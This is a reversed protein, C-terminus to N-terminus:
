LGDAVHRRPQPAAHRGPRGRCLKVKECRARARSRQKLKYERRHRAHPTGARRHGQESSARRQCREAQHRCCHHAHATAPRKRASITIRHVLHVEAPTSRRRATGLWRAGTRKRAGRAVAPTCSVNRASTMASPTAPALSSPALPTGRPTERPAVAKRADDKNYHENRLHTLRSTVSGYRPSSTDNRTPHPTVSTRYRDVTPAHPWACSKGM